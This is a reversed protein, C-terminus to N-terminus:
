QIVYGVVRWAGDSERELTVTERGDDRKAFSTRFLVIAYEGQPAGPVSKPFTTSLVSRQTMPGLPQRVGAASESWRERTIANRFQKGTADWTAGFDGRDALVLWGRAVAQVASTGGGQAFSGGAWAVAALTAASRLVERRGWRRHGAVEDRLGAPRRAGEAASM